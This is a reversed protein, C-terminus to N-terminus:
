SRSQMRAREAQLPFNDLVLAASSPSKVSRLLAGFGRRDKTKPIQPAVKVTENKAPSESQSNKRFPVKVLTGGRKQVRVAEGDRDSCAAAKM